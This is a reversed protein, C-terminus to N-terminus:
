LTILGMSTMYTGFLDNTAGQKIFKPMESHGTNIINNFVEQKSQHEDSRLTLLENLIDPADYTLLANIDLQGIAQGGENSKGKTAQRTGSQYKGVSRVSAYSQSTQELVQMYMIGVPVKEKTTMKLEPIYVYEDLEVDILDAAKHIDSFEVKSFPVVPFFLKFESNEDKLTKRFKAENNNKLYGEILKKSKEGGILNYVDLLLKIIQETKVKSDKAMEKVQKDLFYIVKGLYLEKVVCVNKRAYVGTPSVFTDIELKHNKSVPIQDGPIIHSSTVGKNGHRGALKDGTQLDESQKILYVIRAGTFEAGGKLKHGGIKTFKLPINDSAKIKDNEDTYSDELIKITDRTEKVLNKHLTLVQKDTSMKTNVFVQISTIEGSKAMLKISKQGGRIMTEDSLDDDDFDNNKFVEFDNLYADLSYDYQFEVLVDEKTTKQGVKKVLNLIKVDPPVIISVERVIDRNMKHAFKDTIVYSDEHNYGRYNMIAFVTNVGSSYLGSKSFLKTFAVPTNKSVKEGVELTVMDLPIFSAMKTRSMRPVCDFAEITGDDYKVRIYKDKVVEVVKGNKKAKQVFRRSALQTVIYEGGTGVLPPENGNTGNV